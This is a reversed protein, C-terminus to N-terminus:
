VTNNNFIFYYLLPALTSGCFIRYVRFILNYNELICYACCHTKKMCLGFKQLVAYTLYPPLDGFNIQAGHACSYKNDSVGCGGGRGGANPSRYSPAIPWGLYVFDRKTVGQLVTNWYAALLLPPPYFPTSSPPASPPAPPPSSPTLPPPKIPFLSQHINNMNLTLPM